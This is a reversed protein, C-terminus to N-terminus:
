YPGVKLVNGGDAGIWFFDNAYHFGVTYSPSTGGNTCNSDVSALTTTIGTTTDLVGIKWTVTAGVSGGYGLLYILTDTHVHFSRVDAFDVNTIDWSDILAFSSKNLAFVGPYTFEAGNCLVYLATGNAHLAKASERAAIDPIPGGPTPANATVLSVNADEYNNAFAVPWHAIFLGGSGICHVLSFIDSGHKSWAGVQTCAYTLMLPVAGSTEGFYVVAAPNGDFMPPTINVLHLMYSKEDSHGNRGATNAQTSQIDAVHGTFLVAETNTIDTLL